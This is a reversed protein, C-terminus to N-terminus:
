QLFFTKNLYKIKKSSYVKISDWYRKTYFKGNKQIYQGKSSFAQGWSQKKKLINLISSSKLESSSLQKTKNTHVYYYNGQKDLLLYHYADGIRETRYVKDFSPNPSIDSVAFIPTAMFSLLM